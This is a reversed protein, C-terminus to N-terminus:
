SARYARLPVVMARQDGEGGLLTQAWLTMARVQETWYQAKNDPQPPEYCQQM